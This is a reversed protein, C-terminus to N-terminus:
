KNKQTQHNQKNRYTEKLTIKRHESGKLIDSNEPTQEAKQTNKRAYNRHTHQQKQINNPPIKNAM